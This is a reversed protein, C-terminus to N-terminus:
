EVSVWKSSDVVSLKQFCQRFSSIARLSCNRRKGCHKRGLWIITDGNIWIKSMRDRNAASNTSGLIKMHSVPNISRYVHLRVFLMKYQISQGYTFGNQSYLYHIILSDKSPLCCYTGNQKEFLYIISHFIFLSFISFLRTNQMSGRFANAILDIGLDTKWFGYWLFLIRRNKQNFKSKPKKRFGHRFLSHIQVIKCSLTSKSQLKKRLRDSTSYIYLQPFCQSFLLFQKYCAIEGKRVINEVSYPM